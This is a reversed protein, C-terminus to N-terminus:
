PCNPAPGALYIFEILVTIDVLNVTGDNNVDAMQIPNPVPGGAYLYDIIWTIDLLNCIEDDNADGCVFGRCVYSVVRVDDINWGNYRLGGDTPGMIWRLYVSEQNAAAASIDFEVTTWDLDAIIAYNNWIEVWDIGNNSVAVAARDYVPQEVGLWRCYRLYVNDYDKCDIAPSTIYTEPLNNEYDGELNYGFVQPGNCGETPDPVPYQLEEGGQGSPIGRDWL